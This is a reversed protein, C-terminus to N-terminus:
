LNLMAGGSVFLLLAAIAYAFGQRFVRSLGTKHLLGGQERPESLSKLQNRESEATYSQWPLLTSKSKSMSKPAQTFSHILLAHISAPRRQFPWPPRKSRGHWVLADLPQKTPESSTPLSSSLKASKLTQATEM